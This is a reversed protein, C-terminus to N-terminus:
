RLRSHARSAQKARRACSKVRVVPKTKHRRANQGILNLYARQKKGCLHESNELLGRKGGFMRLVFKGVPVDPANLVKTRVRGKKAQLIAIVLNFDFQGRLAVVLDPLKREGGNSRFYVPGELPEDLLPTFARGRGLISRKPCRNEAFQVRTCPNAIHANDIFQSPPLNVIAGSLNADGDRPRLEARLAPNKARKTAGSLRLDLAPKFGLSGCSAAQFREALPVPTDDAPSFPDAFGGFVTANVTKPECSTPNLTFRDRDIHVRLDRVKLPIGKLIHPIPDSAAGDVQVEATNPDLDLAERTVVTGVDFPGAVAPTIVALSLPDGGFPGALYITGPVYTLASGVGAGVLVRGVRSSAPCSPSALEARGSKAAAAAIAADSCQAVGALKGTLGNPLVADFRTIDQEGDARTLRMFFPSFAGATNNASGATFGPDFPPVGGASCGAGNPGSTVKFSPSAPLPGSGSWATLSAEATYTGCLPPTVLPARPGERFRVTLDSFPLQPIDEFTSVIQGTKPDPEVKGAQKILIGYRANRIVLYAALLSGFPNAEQEALYLAGELADEVLPSKVRVTGLKSSEPCSRTELSESEYQALSCVGLGEAASPNATMGKPLAVVVKRVDSQARNTPDTLGEDEVQLRVDLGTPSEAASNTPKVEVQPSFALEECGTMGQPSPPSEGTHTVAEGSAEEGLWSVADFLTTLPGQCARPLTLFAHENVKVPCEGESVPEETPVAIDGVCEGRLSNHDPSAPSGWLTLSSRYFLIAQPINSLKAVLNHPPSQKVGVDITVPVNLVVFGLRAPVGFPPTLNYVAVHLLNGADESPIVEFEGEIAAIGVATSDPCSPRGEVRKSFEQPSCTPVATQNGVFGPIQAITLDRVEGEPVPGEPTTVTGIALDTTMSFPHSGATTAMTGAKTEFTVDLDELEFAAAASGAWVMSAAVAVAAAAAIRMM